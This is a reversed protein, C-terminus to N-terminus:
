DVAARYFFGCRNCMRTEQWLKMQRKYETRPHLLLVMLAFFFGGCLAMLLFLFGVFVSDEKIWGYLFGLIGFGLLLLQALDEAPDKPPGASVSLHSQHVGSTKAGGIGLGLGGGSVGVGVGATSTDVHSLGEQYVVKALRWENSGCKPCTETNQGLTSPASVTVYWGDKQYYGKLSGEKLKAIVSDETVQHAAAYVTVPIHSATM